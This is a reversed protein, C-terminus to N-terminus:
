KSRGDDFTISKSVNLKVGDDVEFCDMLGVFSVIHITIGNGLFSPIPQMKLDETVEIRGNISVSVFLDETNIYVKNYNREPNEVEYICEGEVDGSRMNTNASIVAERLSCLGDNEVVDDEYNVIIQPIREGHGGDVDSWAPTSLSVVCLIIALLAFFKEM